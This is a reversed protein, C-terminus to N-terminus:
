GLVINDLANNESNLFVESHLLLGLSARMRKPARPPHWSPVAM